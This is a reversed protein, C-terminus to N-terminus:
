QNELLFLTMEEDLEVGIVDSGDFYVQTTALARMVTNDLESPELKKLKIYDLVSYDYFLLIEKLATRINDVLDVRLREIESEELAKYQYTSHLLRSTSSLLMAEAAGDKMGIYRGGSYSLVILGIILLITVFRRLM